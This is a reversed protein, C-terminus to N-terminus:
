IRGLTSLTKDMMDDYARVYRQGAEFHRMTEMLKLMENLAQVNSTELFGQHVVAAEADTPEQGAAVQYFGNGIPRLGTADGVTVIRLKGIVNGNVRITGDSAIAPSGTGVNLAGGTGQVTDGTQTVLQGSADLNFDGRRTLLKGQPSEVLFFGASSLAVNLPNATHRLTGPRLDLASGLEGANLAGSKAVEGAVTAYPAHAVPIQRLYAVSQANAINQAVLALTSADARLATGILDITSSV